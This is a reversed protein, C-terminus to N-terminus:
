YIRIQISKITDIAYLMILARRAFHWMGNLCKFCMKWKFCKSQCVYAEIANFAFSKISLLAFWVRIIDPVNHIGHVNSPLIATTFHYLRLRFEICQNTDIVTWIISRQKHRMGFPKRFRMMNESIIWILNWKIEIYKFCLCFRVPIRHHVFGNQQPGNQKQVAAFHIINFHYVSITFSQRPHYNSDDIEMFIALALTLNLTRFLENVCRISIGVFAQPLLTYYMCWAASYFPIGTCVSGGTPPSIYAALPQYWGFM